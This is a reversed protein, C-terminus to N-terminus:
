VGIEALIQDLSYVSSYHGTWEKRLKHQAPKIQSDLIEGTRKSVTEPEKIEFWYTQGRYGCIIDDHGTQVTMGPIKRLARVIEPQNSDVKAARRWKSM